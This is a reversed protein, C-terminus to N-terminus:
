YIITFTGREEEKLLDVIERPLDIAAATSKIALTRDSIFTSKRVVIDTEHSLPLAPDGAALLTFSLGRVAIVIRVTGGSRLHQKLSEPLDKVSASARVGIICDGRETLHEERTIELTTRHLARVNKHGFFEISYEM